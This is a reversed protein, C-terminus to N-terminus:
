EDKDESKEPKKHRAGFSYKLAMDRGREAVLLKVSFNVTKLHGDTVNFILTGKGNAEKIEASDKVNGEKNLETKSTFQITAIDKGDRSKVRKLTYTYTSKFTLTGQGESISRELVTSWSEGVKIAKKPMRAYDYPIDQIGFIFSRMVDQQPGRGETKKRKTSGDLHVNLTQKANLQKLMNGPMNPKNGDKKESDYEETRDGMTTSMKLSKPELVVKGTKKEEDFSEVKEVIVQSAKMEFNQTEMKQSARVVYTRESGKVFKYGLKYAKGDTADPKAPDTKPAPKSTPKSDQAFAGMPAALAMALVVFASKKLM